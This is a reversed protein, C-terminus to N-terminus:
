ASFNRESVSILRYTTDPILGLLFLLGYRRNHVFAAGVFWLPWGENAEEPPESPRPQSLMKWTRPLLTLAGLVVLM